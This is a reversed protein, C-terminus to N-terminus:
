AIIIKKGLYEDGKVVISVIGYKKKLYNINEKKQGIVNSMNSIGTIVTLKGAGALGKREIEDEMRRLMLRAEVLQRFAPHVPGAAVESDPNENINETAQLGVRIVNIGNAEYLELLEACLDVAEELSQPKYKGNLYLKELATGKIVLAPYIRVIEPSISIVKRATALCKERNDSPLGTMTQIGLRFGSEKILSSAKYVDEATHGRFSAKLVEDDLSQVGLEITKVGYQGLMALIESNICDPRTSLRVENVRGDAIYPYAKELFSKQLEIDIATFSGGYFAIEVFSGPKITKLHTDIIGPVKEPRVEDMQGSIKKQNCFVCDHPCGRHPVFVPIIVHKSQMKNGKM